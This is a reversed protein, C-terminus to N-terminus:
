EMTWAFLDKPSVDEETYLKHVADKYLQDGVEELRNIEVIQDHITKSHKFNWFEEMMIKMGDCCDAITRAFVVADDRISQINYMYIKLLVDEITDTVEDIEQTLAVIDEREIPPLFERTLKELVAHKEGDAAHEIQHMSAMTEPLSEPNFDVLTSHLGEAARCCYDVLHVFMEFYDNGNKKNAM